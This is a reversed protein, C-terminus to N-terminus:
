FVFALKQCNAPERQIEIKTSPGYPEHVDNSVVHWYLYLDRRLMGHLCLTPPFCIHLEENEKKVKASSQTLSYTHTPWTFFWNEDNHGLKWVNIKYM